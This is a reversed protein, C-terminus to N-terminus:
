VACPGVGVPGTKQILLYRSIYIHFPKTRNYRKNCLNLAPNNIFRPPSSQWAFDMNSVIFTVHPFVACALMEHNLQILM